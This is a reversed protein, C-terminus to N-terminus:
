LITFTKQYMTDKQSFGNWWFIRILINSLKTRHTSKQTLDNKMIENNQTKIKNELFSKSHIEESYTERQLTNAHSLLTEYSLFFVVTRLWILTCFPHRNKKVSNTHERIGPSSKVHIPQWQKILVWWQIKLRFITNQDFDGSFRFIRLFNQQNPHTRRSM